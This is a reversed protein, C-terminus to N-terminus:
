QIESLKNGDNQKWLTGGEEASESATRQTNGLKQCTFTGIKGELEILRCSFFLLGKKTKSM